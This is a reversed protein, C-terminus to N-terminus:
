GGTMNKLGDFAGTKYLYYIFFILVAIMTIVTIMLIRKFIMGLNVGQIMAETMHSKRFVQLARPELLTPTECTQSTKIAKKIDNVNVDHMIPISLDEHFYFCWHGSNRLYYRFKDYGKTIYFSKNYIFGGDAIDTIFVDHDGTNLQMDIAVFDTKIKERFWWRFRRSKGQQKRADYNKKKSDVVPPIPVPPLEEAPFSPFRVQEPSKEEDIAKPLSRQPILNKERLYSEIESKTMCKEKKM